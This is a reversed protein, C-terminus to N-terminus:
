VRRVRASENVLRSTERGRTRYVGDATRVLGGLGVRVSVAVVLCRMRKAGSPGCTKVELRCNEYLFFCPAHMAGSVLKVDLLDQFEYLFGALFHIFSFRVGHSIEEFTADGQEAEGRKVVCALGCAAQGLDGISAGVSGVCDDVGEALRASTDVSTIDASVRGEGSGGAEM